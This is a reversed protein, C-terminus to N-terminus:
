GTTSWAFTLYCVCVVYGLAAAVQLSLQPWTFRAPHRMFRVTAWAVYAGGVIAAVVAADIVMVATRTVVGARRGQEERAVPPYLTHARVAASGSVDTRR